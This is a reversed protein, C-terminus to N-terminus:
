TFRWSGNSRFAEGKAALADFDAIDKDVVNISRTVSRTKGPTASMCNLTINPLSVGM